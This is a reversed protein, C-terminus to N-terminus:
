DCSLKKRYLDLRAALVSKKLNIALEDEGQSQKTQALTLKLPTDDAMDKTLYHDGIELIGQDILSLAKTIDKAAIAENAESLLYLATTSLDNMCNDSAMLNECFIAFSFTAVLAGIRRLISANLFEERVKM